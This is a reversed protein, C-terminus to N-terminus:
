KKFSVEFEHQSDDSLTLVFTGTKKAWAKDTNLM